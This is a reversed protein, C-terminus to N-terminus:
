IVNPSTLDSTRGKSTFVFMKYGIFNWVLNLATAAAAAVNDWRIQSLGLPARFAAVLAFTTGVNVFFGIVTIVTFRIFEAKSRKGGSADDFTWLRNLEYSNVLACIFSISKFLAVPAGTDAGTAVILTNFIFFDIGTNLVGVILFKTMKHFVHGRFFREILASGGVFVFPIAVIVAILEGETLLSLHMLVFFWLVSSAVGVLFPTRYERLKM